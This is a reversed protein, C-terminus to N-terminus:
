NLDSLTSNQEPFPTGAPNHLLVYTRVQGTKYLVAQSDWGAISNNDPDTNGAPAVRIKLNGDTTPVTASFYATTSQYPVNAFTPVTGNLFHPPNTPTIYVDVAGSTGVQFTPDAHLIRIKVDGTAPTTHDDVSQLITFTSTNGVAAITYYTKDILGIKTDLLLSQDTSKTIKLSITTGPKQTFYNTATGYAAATVLKTGGISVDITGADPSANLIRVFSRTSSSGCSALALLFGGALLVALVKRM